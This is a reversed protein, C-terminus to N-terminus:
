YDNAAANLARAARRTAPEPWRDPVHLTLAYRTGAVPSAFQRGMPPSHSEYVNRRRPHRLALCRRVEDDDLGLHAAAATITSEAEDLTLSSLIAAAGACASVDARQGPRPTLPLPLRGLHVDVFVLQNGFLRVLSITHGELEPAACSRFLNHILADPDSLDSLRAGAHLRGDAGRSVFGVDELTGLLDAISSKPLGLLGSLAAPTTAAGSSVADLVRVGRHVAPTRSGTM